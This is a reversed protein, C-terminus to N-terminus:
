PTKRKWTKLIRKVEKVVHWNARPDATGDIAEMATPNRSIRDRERLAACLKLRVALLENRLDRIQRDRNDPYVRQTM